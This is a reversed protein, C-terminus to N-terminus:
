ATVSTANQTVLHWSTGILNACIQGLTNKAKRGGRWFLFGVFIAEKKIV